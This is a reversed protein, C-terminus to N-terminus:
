DSRYHGNTEKALWRYLMFKKGAFNEILTLIPLLLLMVPLIQGFDWSSSLNGATWDFILALLAFTFPGYLPDGNLLYGDVVSLFLIFVLLHCSQSFPVPSSAGKALAIVGGIVPVFRVIISSLRYIRGVPLAHVIVSDIFIRDTSGKPYEAAWVDAELRSITVNSTGFASFPSAVFEYGYLAIANPSAHYDVINSLLYRPMDLVSQWITVSTLVTRTAAWGVWGVWDDLYEEDEIVSQYTIFIFSSSLILILSLSTVARRIHAIIKRERLHPILARTSVLHTVM